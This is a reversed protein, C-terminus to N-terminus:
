TEAEVSGVSAWASITRSVLRYSRMQEIDWARRAMNSLLRGAAANKAEEAEAMARMDDRREGVLWALYEEAREQSPYTSFGCLADDNDLVAWERAM